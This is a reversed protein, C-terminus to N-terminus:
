NRFYFSLSYIFWLRFYKLIKIVTTTESLIEHHDKWM